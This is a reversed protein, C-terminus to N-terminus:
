VYQRYLNGNKSLRLNYIGGREGILYGNLSSLNDKKVDDKGYNEPNTILDQIKRRAQEKLIKQKESLVKDPKKDIEDRFQSDDWYKMEIMLDETKFEKFIEEEEKTLSLGWQNRTILRIQREEKSENIKPYNTQDDIIERKIMWQERSLSKESQVRKHKYFREQPTLPKM